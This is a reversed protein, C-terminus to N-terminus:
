RGFSISNGPMQLFVVSLLQVACGSRPVLLYAPGLKSITTTLNLNSHIAIFFFSLQKNLQEEKWEILQDM